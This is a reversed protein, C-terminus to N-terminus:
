FAKTESAKPSPYILQPQPPYPRTGFRTLLVAGFGVCGILFGPLLGLCPVVLAIGNSVLTLLFAGIAASIAPAWSQKFLRAMWDGIEMSISLLGFAWAALFALLILLSFPLCIITLALFLASLAVVLISTLGIGGAALFNQSATHGIGRLHRPLLLAMVVALAAWLFSRLPLWLAKIFPNEFQNPSALTSGQFSFPFAGSELRQVEGAVQAGELGVVKGGMLHIDGGVISDEGLTIIGGAAQISATVTGDMQLSGGVLIVDGDVTAGHEVQAFGGLICLDGDLSEGSEVSYSGGAVFKECNLVKAAAPQPWLIILLLILLISIRIPNKV